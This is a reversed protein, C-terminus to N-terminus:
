NKMFSKLFETKIKEPSWKNVVASVVFNEASDEDILIEHGLIEAAACLLFFATRKNGNLFPHNLLVSRAVYCVKLFDDDIYDLSALSSYLSDLHLLAGSEGIIKNLEILLKEDFM